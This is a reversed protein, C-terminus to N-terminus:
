GQSRVRWAQEVLAKAKKWSIGRDLQVGVWGLHGGPGAPAQSPQAWLPECVGTRARHEGAAARRPLSRGPLLREKPRADRDRAALGQAARLDRLTPPALSPAAPANIRNM